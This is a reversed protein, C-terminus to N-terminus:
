SRKPILCVVDHVYSKAMDLPKLVRNDYKLLDVDLPVRGESKSYSTRGNKRELEKLLCNVADPDLETQFRAAQNMYAPQPVDGEAETLISKGFIIGPFLRTLTKQANKMHIESEFNSGLCVLCEHYIKM